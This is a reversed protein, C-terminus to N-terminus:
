AVYTRKKHDAVVRVFSVRPRLVDLACALRLNEGMSITTWQRPSNAVLRM